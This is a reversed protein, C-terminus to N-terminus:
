VYILEKIKNIKRHDKRGPAAEVGSCLDLAYPKVTNWAEVINEPNLGGALVLNMKRAAEAALTWDCVVGTGGTGVAADALIAAAPLQAAAEIDTRNRLKVAKWVRHVGIRRIDEATEHGHLQAIDLDCQAMIECVRDAPTDVFVGVVPIKVGQRLEAVQEPTVYRPSAPHFIFGLYSAGAAVAAEVDERRTLGCIKIRM